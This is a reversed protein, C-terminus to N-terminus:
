TPTGIRATIGYDRLGQHDRRHPRHLSGGQLTHTRPCRLGNPPFDLPLFGHLSRIRIGQFSFRTPTPFDRAGPSPCAPRRSRSKVILASGSPPLPHLTLKWFGRCFQSNDPTQDRFDSGPNPMWAAFHGLSHASTPARALLLRAQTPDSGRIGRLRRLPLAADLPETEPAGHLKVRPLIPFRVWFCFHLSLHGHRDSFPSIALHLLPDSSM